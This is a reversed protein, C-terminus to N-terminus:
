RALLALPVLVFYGVVLLMPAFMVGGAVLDAYGVLLVLAALAQLLRARDPRAFSRPM